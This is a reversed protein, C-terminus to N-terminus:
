NHLLIVRYRMIAHGQWSNNDTVGLGLRGYDEGKANLYAYFNHTRDHETKSTKGLLAAAENMETPSLAM